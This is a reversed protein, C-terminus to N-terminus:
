TPAGHSGDYFLDHIALQERQPGVEGRMLCTVQQPGKSDASRGNDVIFPPEDTNKRQVVQEFRM